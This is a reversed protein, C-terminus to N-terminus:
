NKSNSIVGRAILDDIFMAKADREHETGEMNRQYHQWGPQAKNFKYINDSDLKYTDQTNTNVREIITDWKLKSHLKNSQM